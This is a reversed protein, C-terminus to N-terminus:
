RQRDRLSVNRYRWPPQKQNMESVLQGTSGLERNEAEAVALMAPIVRADGSMAILVEPTLLRNKYAGPLRRFQDTALVADESDEIAFTTFHVVENRAGNLVTVQALARDLYPDIQRDQAVYCKRIFGTLTEARAGSFLAPGLKDDIGAVACLLHVLCVELWAFDHIFEGLAHRYRAMIHEPDLPYPIDSGAM